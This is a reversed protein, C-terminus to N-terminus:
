QGGRINGTAIYELKTVNDSLNPLIKGDVVVGAPDAGICTMFSEYQCRAISDNVIFNEKVFRFEFQNSCILRNRNFM